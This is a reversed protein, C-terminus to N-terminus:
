MLLLPIGGRLCPEAFVLKKFLIWVSTFFFELPNQRRIHVPGHWALVCVSTHKLYVAATDSVEWMVSYYSCPVQLQVFRETYWGFTGCLMITFDTICKCRLLAYLCAPTRAASTAFCDRSCPYPVQLAKMIELQWGAPVGHLQYALTAAATGGIQYWWYWCWYIGNNGAAPPIPSLFFPPPSLIQAFSQFNSQHFNKSPLKGGIGLILYRHSQVSQM